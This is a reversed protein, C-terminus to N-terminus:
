FGIDIEVLGRILCFSFMGGVGWGLDLGEGIFLYFGFRLKEWYGM